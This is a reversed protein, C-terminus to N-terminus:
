RVILGGAGRWSSLEVPDMSISRPTENQLIELIYTRIDKSLEGWVTEKKKDTVFALNFCETATKSVQRDPDYLSVM